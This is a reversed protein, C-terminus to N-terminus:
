PAPPPPPCPADPLDPAPAGGLGLVATLLGGGKGDWLDSAGLELGRAALESWRAEGLTALAEPPWQGEDALVTGPLALVVLLSLLLPATRLRPTM